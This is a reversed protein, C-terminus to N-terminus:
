PTGRSNRTLAVMRSVILAIIGFIALIGVIGLLAQVVWLPVGEGENDDDNDAVSSEPLSPIDVTAYTIAMAEETFRVPVGVLDDTYVYTYGVWLDVVGTPSPALLIALHLTEQGVVWEYPDQALQYAHEAHYAVVGTTPNYLKPLRVFDDGFAQQDATRAPEECSTGVFCAFTQNTWALRDSVSDYIGVSPLTEFGVYGDDALFGPQYDSNTVEMVWFWEDEPGQVVMAVEGVGPSVVGPAPFFPESIIVEDITEVDITVEEDAIAVGQAAVAGLTAIAVVLAGSSLRSGM